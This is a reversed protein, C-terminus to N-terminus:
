CITTGDAQRYAGHRDAKTGLLARQWLSGNWDFPHYSSLFELMKSRDLKQRLVPKGHDDEGYIQFVTKALDIGVTTMKM